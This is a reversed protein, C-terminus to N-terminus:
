YIQLYHTLTVYIIQCSKTPHPATKKQGVQREQSLISVCGKNRTIKAVIVNIVIKKIIIRKGTAGSDSCIVHVPTEVASPYIIGRANSPISPRSRSLYPSKYFYTSIPTDVGTLINSVKKKKFVNDKHSSFRSLSNLLQSSRITNDKVINGDRCVKELTQTDMPSAIKESKQWSFGEQDAPPRQGCRPSHTHFTNKMNFQFSSMKIASPKICAGFRVDSCQVSATPVPQTEKAATQAKPLAALLPSLNHQTYQERIHSFLFNLYGVFFNLYGM